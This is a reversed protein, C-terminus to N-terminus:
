SGELLVDRLAGDRHSYYAVFPSIHELWSLPIDLRSAVLTSGQQLDSFTRGVLLGEISLRVPASTLPTSRVPFSLTNDSSKFHGIQKHKKQSGILVCHPWAKQRM